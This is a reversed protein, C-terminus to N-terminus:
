GAAALMSGGMAGGVAPFAIIVSPGILAGVGALAVAPVSAGTVLLEGAATAVGGAGAAAPAVVAALETGTVVMFGAATAAGATVLATAPLASGCGADGVASFAGDRNLPNFFVRTM